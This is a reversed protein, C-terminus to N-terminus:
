NCVVATSSLSLAFGLILAAEVPNGFQYVLGGLIVASFCVQAVGAGFIWYRLAWLRAPSLELGITFMLFLVGLEAFAAIGEERTFIVATLWPIQDAWLGIGYPGALAGVALFGLVQSVRLRKLLPILVGALALFLLAERLYPM